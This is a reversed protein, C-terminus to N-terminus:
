GESKNSADLLQSLTNEGTMKVVNGSARWEPLIEEEVFRGPRHSTNDCLVHCSETVRECLKM